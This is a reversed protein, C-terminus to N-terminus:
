FAEETQLVQVGCPSCVNGQECQANGDSWAGKIILSVSVISGKVEKKKVRFNEKSKHWKPNGFHEIDKVSLTYWSASM